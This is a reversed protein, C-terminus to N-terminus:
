PTSSNKPRRIRTWDRWELYAALSIHTPNITARRHWIWSTKPPPTLFTELAITCIIPTIIAGVIDKDGNVPLHHGSIIYGFTVSSMQAFLHLIVSWASKILIPFTIGHTKCFSGFSTAEDFKIDIHQFHRRETYGDPASAPLLCPEVDKLCETWYETDSVSRRNFECRLRWLFAGRCPFTPGHVHSAM